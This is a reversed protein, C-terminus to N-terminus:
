EKARMRALDEAAEADDSAVGLRRECEAIGQAVDGSEELARRLQKSGLADDPSKALIMRAHPIADAARGIQRLSSALLGREYLLDPNMALAAELIPVAAAHRKSQFLMSGWLSQLHWPDRGVVDCACARQYARDAAAEDGLGLHSVGISIWAEPFVPELLVARHLAELADAPGTTSGRVTGIAFWALASDPWLAALAAAGDTAAEANRAANAAVTAKYHFAIEARPALLRALAFHRAAARKADLDLVEARDILAGLVFHELAGIAREEADLKADLLDAEADRHLERLAAARLRVMAAVADPDSGDDCFELAREFRGRELLSYALTVRVLDLEPDEALLSELTVATPPQQWGAFGAVITRDIEARRLAKEGEEIARSRAFLYGFLGATAIVAIALGAGLAAKVPERTVFRAGRAVLSPRRAAIPRSDQIARLDAAFAEVTSYRHDRDKALATELVIELDRSAAPVLARLRPADEHLIARFLGERTSADFPRRGTLFEFLTVGLSFVDTRHDVPARKTALQEPSMYAPTGHLDGSVTLSPTTDDVDRALGFDLVVAHGDPTIMVNGPKVDRHVVGAQHAAHLARAVEEIPGLRALLERRDPPAADRQRAIRRALTEGQVHRMAVYAVGRDEGADYITCIGPHDLRSAVIAERHFRERAILTVADRGLLVKLAVKRSLREDHALFVAGQGGRGLEELLVYPGLKSGVEDPLAPPAGRAGADVLRAYERAVVDEFGPFLACYDGVTRTTGSRADNAYRELFAFVVAPFDSM